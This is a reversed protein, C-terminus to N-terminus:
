TGPWHMSPTVDLEKEPTMPYRGTVFLGGMLGAATCLLTLPIGIFEAVTGWLVGGGAMSGFFVLLYFALARGRVWSPVSVQISTNFSSLLTLWAVGGVIMVGCVLSFNRLYAVAIVVGAFLIAAVQALLEISIRRRIEPLIAAGVIAGLGFAGLLGGYGTSGLGLKNRALLPLLALLATAFFAFTGVRLLVARLVPAQRAYRMGTRIAGTIRESPLSSKLSPRKWYFLVVIVGLFSAANLLFVVGAGAAAVVLGGLAPGVGRAMNFGVSNLVVAAPLEPRPVLEPVIAQWAPANMAAGLGLIFTLMLLVLPTTAGLLTLVGLGAAAALMWGQTFLLLRRRDVVDALAGAPLALLFIPLSTATHVLAVMLPSGALTTMLWAAGVNQMLTGVNSAAAAIWLARFIPQRLPSWASLRQEAQNTTM